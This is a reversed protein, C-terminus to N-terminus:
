VEKIKAKLAKSHILLYQFVKHLSDLYGTLNIGQGGGGGGGGGEKHTLSSDCFLRIQQTKTM